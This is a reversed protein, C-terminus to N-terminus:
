RGQVFGLEWLFLPKLTIGVALRLYAQVEQGPSSKTFLVGIACVSLGIILLHSRVFSFMQIFCLVADNTYLLLSFIPFSSKWNHMQYHTIGTAHLLLLATTLLFPVLLLYALLIPIVFFLTAISIGYHFWNNQM